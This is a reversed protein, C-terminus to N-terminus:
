YPGAQNNTNIRAIIGNYREFPFAWWGHVPGFLLLCQRLHLSLHHNPVLEHEFTSLLGCLYKYMHIDSSRAREKTMSKRTALQVAMVLELFNELLEREIESENWLRILTIVMSVTSVTRWQDATLKGHSPNGFNHPPRSMWSPLTTAALDRRLAMLVDPSLLRFNALDSPKDLLKFNSTAQHLVPPV